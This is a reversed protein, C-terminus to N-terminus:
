LVVSRYSRYTRTEIFALYRGVVGAEFYDNVYCTRTKDVPLM